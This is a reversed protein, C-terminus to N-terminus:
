PACRAEAVLEDLKARCKACISRLEAPDYDLRSTRHGPSLAIGCYTEKTGFMQVHRYRGQVARVILRDRGAIVQRLPAYQYQRVARDSAARTCLECFMVGAPVPRTCTPCIM